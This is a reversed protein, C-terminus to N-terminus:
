VLLLSMYAHLEYDCVFGPGMFLHDNFTTFAVILCTWLAIPVFHFSSNM